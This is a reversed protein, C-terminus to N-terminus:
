ANLCLPESLWKIFDREPLPRCFLFGQFSKCGFQILIERQVETEVGEAIVPLRMHHSIAIMSEILPHEVANSLENVFSKDIKIQDLPLDRLYALSSYGTGFDDMSVKIGQKRLVTLKEIADDLDLLLATETLELMLRGPDIGYKTLAHLVQEVFDPRSFQWPCVNISLYGTFPVGTTLWVALKSCAQDLVWPGITHILGTEETIPIFTDPAIDGLEPHHWRLLAEAGVCQDNIDVQAQFYLELEGNGVACRLGNELQLRNTAIDHMELSYFQINGRGLHKARYLAMDAHRMIDLESEGNEPFLVVGISAGLNFTRDGVFLPSLLKELIQRALERASEEAGLMSSMGMRQLVVFEDGGMRAVFGREAVVKDLRRGVARLVEDGVDHSLADNITKFHDLDILLLVGIEEGLRVKRLVESLHEHLHARNALGTLYDYYAMRRIHTEARRRQLESGARAAFIELMEQMQEIHKLPKTDLVVILGLPQGQADFLPTGIYGEIGMEVLLQDEPFLQQAGLPYACTTQGMVNACPTGALPYSFDTATQGHACVALTNIRLVEGADLEGIFAYEADFLKALNQTLQQFFAEGTEASVGAAILRLADEVRKKDTVDEHMLVVDTIMGTLDKIPYIYGKVWRDRFPGQGVPNDTPNYIIPPIATAQSIFGKELYSMVGKEFLQKDQLINYLGFGEDKVGWLKKWAPNVQRTYGDPSLLQISFPSQEILSRFRRESNQLHSQLERSYAASMIIVMLLYGFSGLEIFDIVSLRVLIGQASALLFVGVALLMALDTGRSERRYREGIAYLAYGHAMFVAAITLYTWVSNDGIGRTVLEGWPLQLTRIGEFHQYQLSYPQTQNVVFFLAFLTSLGILLPLPLKGTHRAIFWPFLGYFLCLVSFSWNLAQIFERKNAAQFILIQSITLPIMLLCLGAFLLQSVNPRQHFGLLLHNIGAFGCIGALVLMGLQAIDTM